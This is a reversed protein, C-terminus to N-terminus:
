FFIFPVLPSGEVHADCDLIHTDFRRTPADCEGTSDDCGGTPSPVDRGKIPGDHETRYHADCGESPVDCGETHIAFGGM